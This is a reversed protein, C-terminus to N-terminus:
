QNGVPAGINGTDVRGGLFGMRAVECRGWSVGSKVGSVEDPVHSPLGVSLPRAIGDLVFVDETAKYADSWELCAAVVVYLM